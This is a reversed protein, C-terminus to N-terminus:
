MSEGYERSPTRADIAADDVSNADIAYADTTCSALLLILMLAGVLMKMYEVFQCSKMMM